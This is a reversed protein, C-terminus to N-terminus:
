RDAHLGGNGVSLGRDPMHIAVLFLGTFPCIAISSYALLDGDLMLGGSPGNAVMDAVLFLTSPIPYRSSCRLSISSTTRRQCTLSLWRAIARAVPNARSVTLFYRTAAPPRPSLAVPGGGVSRSSPSNRRSPTTAVWGMM